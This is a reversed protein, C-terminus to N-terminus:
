CSREIFVKDKLGEDMDLYKFGEADETHMPIVARTPNVAKIVDTLMQVSAHGSTHLHKIEVGKAEQREIFKIWEDKRAGKTKDIYGDWMSYIIVPMENIHGNKYDEIFPDVFKECWEAPKIVALFGTYEMLEKQTKKKTWEPRKLERELELEYVNEFKYLDTYKGATKTFTDLQTKFYNNYTYLYRGYPVSADQAAQYFSALSDLNTSSCILFAYKHEHLYKTAELQLEFETLVPEDSRSIMTGETILVDVDRKPKGTGEKNGYRRIYYNIVPLMAKGRRGHGRFDGTHLIITKGGPVSDDEVEILFMYADYASHDVSYPEIKFGPIDTIHKYICRAKKFTRIRGDDNLLELEARAADGDKTRTLARQINIMVKRATEGMYLTKVSKPIEGIRGVHDGHYHTFFVADIPEKDWPYDFDKVTGSGELSSGYDIMIRHTKGNVTSSIVTVCGGIQDGQFIKINEYTKIM